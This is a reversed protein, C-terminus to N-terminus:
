WARLWATSSLTETAPGAPRPVTYKLTCKVAHILDPQTTTTTGDAKLGILNLETINAALLNAPTTTGYLIQNTGSDHEWIATTTGNMLLTLGGSVDAATSIATVRSAQRVRRVIHSM